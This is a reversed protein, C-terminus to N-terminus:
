RHRPSREVPGVKWVYREMSDLQHILQEETARDPANHLREILEARGPQDRYYHNLLARDSVFYLLVSAALAPVVRRLLGGFYPGLEPRESGKLTLWLGLATLSVIGVLLYIGSMPWLQVKFLMGVMALGLALGTATSLGPLQDQPTPTPFLSRAAKIYLVSLSSLGLILLVSAFPLSLVKLVTGALICVLLIPELKKM